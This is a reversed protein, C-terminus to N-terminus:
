PGLATLGLLKGVGAMEIVLRGEGGHPQGPYGGARHADADAEEGHQALAGPAVHELEVQGVAGADGVRQGGHAVQRAAQREDERDVALM